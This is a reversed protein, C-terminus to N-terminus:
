EDEKYDKDNNILEEIVDDVSDNDDIFLSDDVEKMWSNKMFCVDDHLYITKGVRKKIHKEELHELLKM